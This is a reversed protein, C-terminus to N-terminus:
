MEGVHFASLYLVSCVIFGSSLSMSEEALSWKRCIGNGEWVTGGVPSLTNLYM